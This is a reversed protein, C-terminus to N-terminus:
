PGRYFSVASGTISEDTGTDIAVDEVPERGIQRWTEGLQEYEVRWYEGAEDPEFVLKRRVGDTGTWAVTQERIANM